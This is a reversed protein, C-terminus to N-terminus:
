NRKKKAAATFFLMLLVNLILVVVYKGNIQYEAGFNHWARCSVDITSLPHVFFSANRVSHTRKSRLIM